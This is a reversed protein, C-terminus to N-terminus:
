VIFGPSMTWSHRTEKHENMNKDRSYFYGNMSGEDATM